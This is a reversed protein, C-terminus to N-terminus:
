RKDKLARISDANIECCQEWAGREWLSSPRAGSEECVKAAEELVDDKLYLPQCRPCGEDREDYHIVETWGDPETHLYAVPKM